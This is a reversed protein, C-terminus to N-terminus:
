WCTGGLTSYEMVGNPFASPLDIAGRQAQPVLFLFRTSRFSIGRFVTPSEVAGSYVDAKCILQMIRCALSMPGVSIFIPLESFIPEHMM